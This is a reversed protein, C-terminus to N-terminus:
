NVTDFMFADPDDTNDATKATNEVVKELLENTKKQESQLTPGLLQLRMAANSGGM